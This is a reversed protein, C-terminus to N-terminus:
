DTAANVTIQRRYYDHFLKEIEEKGSSVTARCIEVAKKIEEREELMRTKENKGKDLEQLVAQMRAIEKQLMKIENGCERLSETLGLLNTGKIASLQMALNDANKVKTRGTSIEEMIASIQSNLERVDEEKRIREAPEKIYDTLKIKSSAIYDHKRAVREIPLLIGTVSRNVDNYRKRAMELEKEKGDIFKAADEEASGQSQGTEPKGDLSHKFLSIKSMDDILAKIRDELRRYENLQQGCSGLEGSLDKCLREMANFSTKTDGLEKAYAMMVLKFTNNAKLVETMFKGYSRVISEGKYYINKGDYEPPVSAIHLLSSCYNPKQSILYGEKVGFLYDMNPGAESESFKEVANRFSSFARELEREIAPTRASLRKLKEDFCKNLYANLESADVEERPAAKGFLM